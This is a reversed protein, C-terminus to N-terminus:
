ARTRAPSEGPMPTLPTWVGASAIGADLLEDLRPLEESATTPLVGAPRWFKSLERATTDDAHPGFGVYTAARGCHRLALVTARMATSSAVWSARQDAAFWAFADSLVLLHADDAETAAALTELARWGAALAADVRGQSHRHAPATDEGRTPVWVVWTLADSRAAEIARVQAALDGPAAVLHVVELGAARLEAVCAPVEGAETQLLVLRQIGRRHALWLAARMSRGGGPGVLLASGGFPLASESGTAFPGDVREYRAVLLADDRLALEPAPDEALAELMALTADEVEADPLDRASWRHRPSGSRLARCFGWVAASAPAPAAGDVGVAARTLVMVRHEIRTMDLVQALGRCREIAAGPHEHTTSSVLVQLAGTSGTVDAVSGARAEIGRTRLRAALSEADAGLVLWPRPLAAGVAALDHTYWREVHLSAQTADDGVATGAGLRVLVDALSPASLILNPDLVEGLQHGLVAQLEAVQSSDMGLERPSRALIEADVPMGLVETLAALILERLSLDVKARVDTPEDLGESVRADVRLVSERGAFGPELFERRLATRQIKGSTTKSILGARGLVVTGVSGGPVKAVVTARIAACIEPYDARTAEDRLEALVVVEETGADTEAGFVAIRGPRVAPHVDLLAAEIDTPILNHGRVIILEKLRGTVYLRGEIMGGLDGTRLYHYGDDPATVAKFTAACEVGEYGDATSPSCVWIEGIQGDPQPSRTEPDVIRIRVDDTAPGGDFLERADAAESARLQGALLARPDVRIREYGPGMVDVVHEALGYCNGIVGPRLRAVAFADAFRDVSAAQVAEGGLGLLHVRSLDWGARQQATTKRVTLDLAFNPVATATARYRHMLEPWLAPRRLFSLPSLLTLEANTWLTGIIGCVLGFDHYHPVWIVLSGREDLRAYKCNYTQNHALNAHTIRVGRPAGTSGSTYQLFALQQPDPLYLPAQEGGRIADTVVWPLEPWAVRKRLRAARGIRGFIRIRHYARHTLLARAGASRTVHWLHDVDSGFPDPPMLAAPVVGVLLCGLFAEVFDLSPLYILAVRDGPVLGHKGLLAAGIRRARTVLEGLDREVVVQGEDGIFRFRSRQAFEPLREALRHNLSPHEAPPFRDTTVAASSISM